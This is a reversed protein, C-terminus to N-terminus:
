PGARNGGDAEPALAASARGPEYFYLTAAGVSSRSWVPRYRRVFAEVRADGFRAGLIEMWAFYQAQQMFSLDQERAFRREAPSPDTLLGLTAEVADHITLGAPALDWLPYGQRDALQMIPVLYQLAFNQYHIARAGRAVERPFTGDGQLEALANHVASVGFRFLEDDGALIGISAAHLGRRYYHNNWEGRPIGLHARSARGLWADIAQTDSVRDGAFPRVVAYSLALAFLTAEVAFWAQPERPKYHFRTFADQEAWGALLDVLRDAHARDGSALFAAALAAVATEIARLDRTAVEWAARDQYFRPIYGVYAVAESDWTPERPVTLAADIAARLTPDLTKELLTRRSPVDFLGAGPDTVRYEALDLRRRNPWTVSGSGGAARSRLRRAIDRGAM